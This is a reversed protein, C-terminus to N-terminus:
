GFSLGGMMEELAALARENELEEKTLGPAARVYETNGGAPVIEEPRYGAAYERTRELSETLSAGLRRHEDVLLAYAADLFHSFTM